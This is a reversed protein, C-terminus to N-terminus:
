NIILLVDENDGFTDLVIIKGSEQRFKMLYDVLDVTQISTCIIDYDIYQYHTSSDKTYPNTPIDEVEEGDATDFIISKDMTMYGDVIEEHYHVEFCVLIEEKTKESVEGGNEIFEFLEERIEDLIERCEQIDKKCRNIGREKTEAQEETKPEIARFKTLNEMEVNLEEKIQYYENEISM